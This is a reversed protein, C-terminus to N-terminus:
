FPIQPIHDGRVHGNEPVVLDGRSPVGGFSRSEIAVPVRRREHVSLDSRYRSDM